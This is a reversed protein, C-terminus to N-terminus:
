LEMIFPESNLVRSRWVHHPDHLNDIGAINSERIAIRMYPTYKEFVEKTHMSLERFFFKIADITTKHYYSGRKSWLPTTMITELSLAPYIQDREINFNRKLFSCESIHKWEVSLETKDDSTIVFGLHHAGVKLSLGNFKNRIDTSVCLINDDGQVCCFVKVHFPYSYSVGMELYYSYRNIIQNVLCNVVLTLYSGSPMSSLWEYLNYNAIHHSNYVEMMLTSRALNHQDKGQYTYWGNIVRLAELIIMKTQCADFKKYDVSLCYTSSVSLDFKSLEHALESWEHGYVNMSMATGKSVCKTSLFEVFHGYLMKKLVFLYFPSGSFLRSDGSERKEKTVLSDKLNDTYIWVSRVGKNLLTLYSDVTKSFSAYEPNHISREVNEGLLRKKCTPDTFKLPYGPSTNCPIAKRYPYRADGWLVTPLDMIDETLEWPFSCIFSQYDCVARNLIDEDYNLVRPYYHKIANSYPDLDNRADYYLLAPVKNSRPFSTTALISPVIQSKQYPSHCYQSVGGSQLLIDDDDVNVDVILQDLKSLGQLILEKTVLTSYAVKSYSHKPTGAVHIGLIRRCGFRPDRIMLPMGCDGIDTDIFYKVGKDIKLILENVRVISATSTMTQFNSSNVVLSVHLDANSISAIDADV